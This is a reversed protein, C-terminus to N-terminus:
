YPNIGSLVLLSRGWLRRLDRGGLLSNMRTTTDKLFLNVSLYPYQASRYGADVTDPVITENLFKQSSDCSM